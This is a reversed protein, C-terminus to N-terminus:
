LMPVGGMKRGPRHVIRMGSFETIKYYRAYLDSLDRSSFVQSLASHDTQVEFEQHLLYHRFSKLAYLLALCERDHAPLKKQADVFAKSKYEVPQLYRDADRRYMAICMAERSADTRVVLKDNRTPIALVPPTACRIKPEEFGVEQAEGWRWPEGKKLLLNLSAALDAFDPIWRRVFGCLGLFARV